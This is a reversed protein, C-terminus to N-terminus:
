KKVWTTQAAALLRNDVNSRMTHLFSKNEMDNRNYVRIKEGLYAGHFFRGNIRKLSYNDLIEDPMSEMLWHFYRINNVHKNNDVDSKSINYELEHEEDEIVKIKEMEVEQSVEPNLGWRTKIEDFIPVPKRKEIDYFIWVGKA